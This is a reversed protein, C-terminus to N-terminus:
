VNTPDGKVEAETAEHEALLTGVLWLSVEAADAATAFRYDASEAGQEGFQLSLTREDPGQLVRISGPVILRSRFHRGSTRILGTRADALRLFATRRDETMVVDRIPLAPYVRGFELIARGSDELTPVHPRDSRRMTLLGLVLAAIAIVALLGLSM